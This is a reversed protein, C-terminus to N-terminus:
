IRASALAPQAARPRRPEVCLIFQQVSPGLRLERTLSSILSLNLKYRAPVVRQSRGSACGIAERPPTKRRRAPASRAWGTIGSEEHLRERVKQSGQGQPRPKRRTVHVRRAEGKPDNTESGSPPRRCHAAFGRDQGANPDAGGCGRRLMPHRCSHICQCLDRSIAAYPYGWNEMSRGCFVVARQFLFLLHRGGRGSPGEERAGM